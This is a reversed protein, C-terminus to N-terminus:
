LVQRLHYLELAAVAQVEANPHFISDCRFLAAGTCNAVKGADVMERAIIDGANQWEAAGTGAYADNAGAKYFGLGAMLKCTTCLSSWAALTQAFPMSQNEYGFYIQPCLYDVYGQASGWLRVDAFHRNEDRDVSADPSVGFEKDQGHAKVAAYVQAALASVGARRWDGLALAGGAATYAAYADADFAADDTPYFYDDFHVGDFACADLLENAYATDLAQVAASTPNLYRNGEFTLIAYPDQAALRAALADAGTNDAGGLRYPNFWAHIRMNRAHAAAVALGAYDVSANFSAYLGNRTGLVASDTLSEGFARLQFFVDTTGISALDDFMAELKKQYADGDADVVDALDLYSVWVAIRFGEPLKGQAEALPKAAFVQRSLADEGSGDGAQATEEKGCGALLLCLTLCLATLHNLKVPM